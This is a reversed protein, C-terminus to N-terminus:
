ALIFRDIIESLIETLRNRYYDEKFAKLCIDVRCQNIFKDYEESSTMITTSLNSPLMTLHGFLATEILGYLQFENFSKLIESRPLASSDIGNMMLEQEFSDCYINLLNDLHHVRMENTSNIYILQALDTALPAYRCLQFDVIRCEIPQNGDFLMMLNNVWLDAHTLVNRYNESPEVFDYIKRMLLPFKHLIEGLNKSNQYKPIHRILESLVKIGNELGRQRIRGIEKPYANEELTESHDDSIKCRNMEEYIVSSAHFKALTYTAVKLQEVNYILDKSAETKYNALNELVMINGDSTFYCDPAWKISCHQQLLPILTQYLKAEKKFCGTEELYEIRKEVNKPVIKLFYDKVFNTQKREIVGNIQLIFHDGLFGIPVDGIKIIKHSEYEAGDGFDRSIVSKLQLETLMEM